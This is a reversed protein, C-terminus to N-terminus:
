YLYDTESGWGDDDEEGLCNSGYGEEDYDGLRDDEESGYLDELYLDIWDKYTDMYPLLEPALDAIDSRVLEKSHIWRPNRIYRLTYRRGNYFIHKNYYKPNFIKSIADRSVNFREACETFTEFTEGTEVVLILLGDKALSRPGRKDNYGTNLWTSNHIRYIKQDVPSMKNYYQLEYKNRM